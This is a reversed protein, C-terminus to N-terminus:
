IRCGRGLKIANWRKKENTHTYISNHINSQLLTVCENVLLRLFSHLYLVVHSKEPPPLSPNVTVTQKKRKKQKIKTKTALRLRYLVIWVNSEFTCYKCTQNIYLPLCILFSFLKLARTKVLFCDRGTLLLVYAPESIHDDSGWHSLSFSKEMM